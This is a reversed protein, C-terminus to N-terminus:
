PHEVGDGDVTKNGGASKRNRFELPSIQTSSKFVRNFHSISNFGVTLAIDIVLRDSEQLLRKAEHIRISTLYQKFSMKFVDNMVKAVKKQSLGLSEGMTVISLEPESFHEAVYASIRQADVDRYNQVEKKEYTIIIPNNRRRPAIRFIMYAIISASIIVLLVLAYINPNKALAIQAVTITDIIGTKATSGSEIQLATVKSFDIPAVDKLTINNRQFWWEPTAFRKFPISITKPIPTLILDKKLYRETLPDGPKSIKKDFVRLYLKCDSLQSSAIRIRLADFRSCDLYKGSSDQLLITIGAYPYTFGPELIYRMTLATTDKGISVIESNGPSAKELRDDYATTERTHFDIKQNRFCPLITAGCLFLLVSGIIIFLFKRDILPMEM